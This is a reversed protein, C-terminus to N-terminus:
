IFCNPLSFHMASFTRTSMTVLDQSLSEPQCLLLFCKMILILLHWSKTYMKTIQNKFGFPWSVAQFFSFNRKYIHWIHKIQYLIDFNQETIYAKLRRFYSNANIALVHLTGLLLIMKLSYNNLALVKLPSEKSNCLRFNLLKSTLLM